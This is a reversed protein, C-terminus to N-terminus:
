QPVFYFGHMEDVTFRYMTVSITSSIIVAELTFLSHKFLHHPKFCSLCHCLCNQYNNGNTLFLFFDPPFFLVPDIVCFGVTTKDALLKEIVEILQDKQEPDLSVAFLIFNLNM